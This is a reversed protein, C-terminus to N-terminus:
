PGGSSGRAGPTTERRVVRRGRSTLSLVTVGAAPPAVALLGEDALRSVVRRVHHRTLPWRAPLDGLAVPGERGVFDLISRGVTELADAPVTEAIRIM